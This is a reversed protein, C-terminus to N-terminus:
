PCRLSNGVVEGKFLQASRHACADELAHCDGQEDRYLAIPTTFLRAQKVEGPAIEDSPLVPYWFSKLM